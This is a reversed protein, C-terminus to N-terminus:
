FMSGLTFYIDSLDHGPRHNFGYGWDLRIPFAPTTFRIGFGAGAKLDEIGSGVRTNMDTFKDWSNGIDFFFAWQVITRRKERALPFKFEINLVDYVKGGEEPGIQGNNKYGRVTDAGGLFYREYVPVSKTKGFREVFGLRNSIALVFPYDGISFLTHNFSYSLTPKYFNTDGLFIGGTYEVGLSLKSGRTPDWVSDRTDRAVELFMSSSVSEGDEIENKFESDVEYVRVNELTYATTFYYRDDEFRPTLSIRGGTRKETYAHLQDQYPKYHRTNYMDVGLRIPKDYIWPTSFNLNFDQTNKGFNYSLSTRYAKGFLNLHSLSVTGVFGESSSIGAGATLMGPKGEEVDFVLDVKDPEETPNIVLRVDDIFGLNFMKEQSRRIKSANFIEGEKQAVERKFVYSKTTKNGEIDIHGVYIPEHETIIFTIDTEGTKENFTREPVIEAKLYGKDAYKNQIGSITDRFKEQNYKRGRSYFISQKFDSPMYVTNGSFFTAGFYQIAGEEVNINLTVGSRNENFSVSSSVIKFDAYGNDKYYTSLATLDSELEKPSYKKNPRNKLKKRLKKEKFANVGSFEVAAMMARPGEEVQVDIECLATTTDCTAKYDAKADIYGKDNYKETIKLMDERLRFEDLFDKEKTDMASKVSSASLKKQGSVKIKKIAPKEVISYTIKVKHPYSTDKQYKQSTSTHPLPSIDVSINEISGLGMILEIDSSIDSKKYLKGKKAKGTKILVKPKLNKNGVVDIEGVEWPGTGIYEGSSGASDEKNSNGNDDANLDAPGDPTLNSNSDAVTQEKNQESSVVNQAHLTNQSFAILFLPFLITKNLIM